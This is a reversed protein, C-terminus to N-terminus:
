MRNLSKKNWPFLYMEIISITCQKNKQIYIVKRKFSRGYSSMNDYKFIRYIIIFMYLRCPADIIITINIFIM